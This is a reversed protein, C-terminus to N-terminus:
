GGCYTIFGNTSISSSTVASGDSATVQVVLWGAQTQLADSGFVDSGIVSKVGTTGATDPYVFTEGDAEHTCKTVTWVTYGGHAGVFTAGAIFAGYGPSYKPSGDDPPYNSYIPDQNWPITSKSRKFPAQVTTGNSTTMFEMGIGAARRDANSTDFFVNVGAPVTSQKADTAALTLLKLDGSYTNNARTMGVRQLHWGAIAEVADQLEGGTDYAANTLLFDTTTAGTVIRVTNAVAVGVDITATSEDGDYWVNFAVDTDDAVRTVDQAYIKHNLETVYNSM